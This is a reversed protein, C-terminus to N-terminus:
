APAGPDLLPLLWGPGALQGAPAATAVRRRLERDATVVVVADAHHALDAAVAVVTDDGSADSRVTSAWDADAVSRAQGEVVAVVQTVVRTVGAPDTVTVARLRDLGALLRAAAAPRDKWWGDPRSGVVNAADVVVTLAGAEVATWTHAFGPHLSRDLVEGLPVWDLAESERNLETPLPTPTDAYVTTYSWGGHDDVFTHRIRLRALDLATEEAAERLAATVVDEHSDRAGGPLGWTGGHHSWGARHQLLVRAVGEDDVAHLLLGAAGHRGWHRHGLACEVWGNGDHEM